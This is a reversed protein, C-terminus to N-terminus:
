IFGIQEMEKFDIKINNEWTRGTKGFITSGEPKGILIRFERGNTSSIGGLM